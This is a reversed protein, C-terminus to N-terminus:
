HNRQATWARWTRTQRWAHWKISSVAALTLVAGLALLAYVGLAIYRKTQMHGDWVRFMLALDLLLALGVSSTM